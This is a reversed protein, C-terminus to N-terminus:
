RKCIEELVLYDMGNMNPHQWGSYQKVKSVDVVNGNGNGMPMEHFSITLIKYRFKICDVQSYFKASLKGFKTPKLYDSLSWYYSYNDVKRISSFNVYTNMGLNSKGTGTGILSWDSYSPSSFLLVYIILSLCVIYKKM